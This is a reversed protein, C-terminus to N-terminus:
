IMNQINPKRRIAVQILNRLLLGHLIETPSGFLETRCGSSSDRFGLDWGGMGSRKLGLVETGVGQDRFLGLGQSLRVKFQGPKPCSPIFSHIRM